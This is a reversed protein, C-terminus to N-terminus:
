CLLKVFILMDSELVHFSIIFIFDMQVSYLKFNVVERFDIPKLVIALVLGSNVDKLYESLGSVLM